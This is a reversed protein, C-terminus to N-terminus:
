SVPHWTTNEHSRILVADWNSYHLATICACSGAPYRHDAGENPRRQSAVAQAANACALEQLSRGVSLQQVFADMRSHQNKRDANQSSCLQKKKKQFRRM